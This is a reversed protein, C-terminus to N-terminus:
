VTSGFRGIVYVNGVSDVAMTQGVNLLGVGGRILNKGWHFKQSQVKFQIVLVALM